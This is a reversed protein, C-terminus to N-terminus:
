TIFANDFPLDSSSFRFQDVFLLSYCKIISSICGIFPSLLGFNAWVSSLRECNVQYTRFDTNAHGRVKPCVLLIVQADPMPWAPTQILVSDPKLQLQLNNRLSPLHVQFV